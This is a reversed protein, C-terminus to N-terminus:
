PSKEKRGNRELYTFDVASKCFTEKMWVISLLVAFLALVILLYFLPSYHKLQITEKQRTWDVLASMSSASLAAIIAIMSNNLSIALALYQSQLHEVISAFGITQGSAGIGLLFFGGLLFLPGTGWTILFLAICLLSASFIMLQRRRKICDSIWGILPCGIAYGLWSLTITYAAFSSPHGKLTVYIAGENEALYEIFFYSIGSFLAITWAQPRHFLAKLQKKISSPPHLVIYSGQRVRYKEVFFVVLLFLFGGGIGILFFFTEWSLSLIEILDNLPGAALMPGLAGTFQSIGIWLAKRPTPLWQYVAVLLSLFGFSAGIGTLARAFLAVAFTECYSFLIASFSCVAVGLLLARKLGYRDTIMGAPIQMLGSFLFCSSTSLMSFKTSSIQLDEMIPQQFTGMFTRLFFEYFFFLTCITWILFGKFSSNTSFSFTQDTM